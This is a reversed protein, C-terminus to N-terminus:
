QCREIMAKYHEPKIIGSNKIKNIQKRRVLRIEEEPFYKEMRNLKTKSKRDMRGKVEAWWHTGDSMTIKFDPLYYRTGKTIKEFCFTYPEYEWAAIEGNELAAQLFLAYIYEWGSRFYYSKKEILYTGAYKASSKLDKKPKAQYMRVFRRPAVKKYGLEELEKLSYVRM